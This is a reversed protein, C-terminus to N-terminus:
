RSALPPPLGVGALDGRSVSRGFSRNFLIDVKKEGDILSERVQPQAPPNIINVTTKGAGGEAFRGVAVTEGPQGTLMVPREATGAGGIRYLGGNANGFLGGLLSSFLGGLGGGGGGMAGGLLGVFANGLPKTVLERLGIQAMDQLLGKFVDELDGAKLVATEFASEFAFGLDRAADTTEKTTDRAALLSDRARDIGRQLDEGGIGLDILKQVEGAYQEEPTQLSRIVKAREAAIAEQARAAETRREREVGLLYEHVEAEENLLDIKDALKRLEKQAENDFERAAGFRIDAEIKALENNEGQLELQKRLNSLAAEQAKVIRERETQAAKAAGQAAAEDEVIRAAPRAAAAAAPAAGYQEPQLVARLGEAERKTRAFQEQLETLAGTLRKRESGLLDTRELSKSLNAIRTELEIEELLLEGLRQQDNGSGFVRDRSLASGLAEFVRLLGDGEQYARIFETSLNALSGVLESGLQISVGQAAKGLRNLDDNFQAAARAAEDTVVQGFEAAEEGAARLGAAGENLLPLLQAGGRGLLAMARASKEAGDPLKSIADAVDTFLAEVGKIAGNSTTVSVGLRAFEASATKGGRAAEDAKRGLQSLATQLAESSVDALDAAFALRSFAETTVGARQAMKGMQDAVNIGEKVFAGLAGVSLGAGIGALAKSTLGAVSTLGGLSRQAFGVSDQLERKFRENELALEVKIDPTSAM